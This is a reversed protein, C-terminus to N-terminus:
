KYSFLGGQSLSCFSRYSIMLLICYRSVIIIVAFKALHYKRQDRKNRKMKKGFLYKGLLLMWVFLSCERATRNNNNKM